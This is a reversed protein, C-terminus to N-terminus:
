SIQVDGFQDSLRSVVDEFDQTSVMYKVTGSLWRGIFVLLGPPLGELTESSHRAFSVLTSTSLRELEILLDGASLIMSEDDVNGEIADLQKCKQFTESTLRLHRQPRHRRSM